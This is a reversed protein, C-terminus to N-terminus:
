LISSYCSGVKHTVVGVSHFSVVCCIGKQTKSGIFIETWKTFCESVVGTNNNYISFDNSQSRNVYEPQRTLAPNLAPNKEETRGTKNV